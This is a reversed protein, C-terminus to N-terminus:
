STWIGAVCLSASEYIDQFRLHGGFGQALLSSFRALLLSTPASQLITSLMLKAQFRSLKVRVLGLFAYM